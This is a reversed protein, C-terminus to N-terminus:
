GKEDKLIRELIESLSKIETRKDGHYVTIKGSEVKRAWVAQINGRKKPESVEFGKSKLVDRVQSETLRAKKETLKAKKVTKKEVKKTVKKEPM